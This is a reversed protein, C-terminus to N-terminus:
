NMNSLLKASLIELIQHRKINYIYLCKLSQQHLLCIGRFRLYVEARSRLMMDWVVSIKNESYAVLINYM